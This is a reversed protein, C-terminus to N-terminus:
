KAFLIDNFSYHKDFDSIEKTIIIFSIIFKLFLLILFTM